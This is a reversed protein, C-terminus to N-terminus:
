EPRRGFDFQARDDFEGSALLEGRVGSCICAM